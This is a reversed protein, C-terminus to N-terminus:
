AEGNARKREQEELCVNWPVAWAATVIQEFTVPTEACLRLNNSVKLSTKELVTRLNKIGKSLIMSINDFDNSMEHNKCVFESKQTWSVLLVSMSFGLWSLTPCDLAALPRLIKPSLFFGFSL